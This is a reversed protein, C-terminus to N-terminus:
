KKINMDAVKTECVKSIFTTKSKKSINSDFLHGASFASGSRHRSFFQSCSAKQGLRFNLIMLNSLGWFVL